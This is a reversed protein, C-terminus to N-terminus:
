DQFEVEPYADSPGDLLPSDFGRLHRDVFAGV